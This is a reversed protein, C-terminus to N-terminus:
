FDRREDSVWFSGGGQCPEKRGVKARIFVSILVKSFGKDKTSKTAAVSGMCLAYMGVEGGALVMMGAVLGEGEKQLAIPPDSLSSPTERM